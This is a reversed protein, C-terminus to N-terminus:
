TVSRAEASASAVTIEHREAFTALHTLFRQLDAPDFRAFFKEVTIAKGNRLHFKLDHRLMDLELLIRTLKEATTKGCESPAADFCDSRYSFAELEETRVCGGARFWEWYVLSIRWRFEREYVVLKDGQPALWFWWIAFPCSLALIVFCLNRSWAPEHPGLAFQFFFISLVTPLGALLLTQTIPMTIAIVPELFRLQSGSPFTGQYRM